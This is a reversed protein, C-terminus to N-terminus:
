YISRSKTKFSTGTKLVCTTITDDSRGQFTLKGKALSSRANKMLYLLDSIPWNELDKQGNGTLFDLIERLDTKGIGSCRMCADEHASNVRNDEDSAVFYSSFGNEKM